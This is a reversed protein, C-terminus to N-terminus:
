GFVRILISLALVVILIWFFTGIAVTSVEEERLETKPLPATRRRPPPTTAALLLGFLLALMLMPLWSLGWLTPGYPQMWLGGAWAALFVVLFFWIISNWPGRRRFGAAFVATVLLGVILATIFVAILPM